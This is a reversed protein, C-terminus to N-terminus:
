FFLIFINSLFTTAAMRKDKLQQLKTGVISAAVSFSADIEKLFMKPRFLLLLLLLECRSSLLLLSMSFETILLLLLM